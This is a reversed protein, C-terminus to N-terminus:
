MVTFSSKSTATGSPTDVHFPGTTAGSPVTATIQTSSDQTFSAAVGNFTVATAGQLNTGTITVSAGVSGSTPSFYSISPHMSSTYVSYNVVFYGWNDGYTGPPGNYNAADPIGLYVVTAGTPVDFYQVQGSNTLGDGVFFLQNLLPSLSTFDTGITDFNLTPPPSGSPIGGSEFVAGLFGATPTIIGSIPGQADLTQGQASGVGDADNYNSGNGFNTSVCPVVCGPGFSGGTIDFTVATAGKVLPIAVPLIGTGDSTNVASFGAASIDDTANVTISGTLTPIVFFRTPTTVVGGPTIIQLRGTLAGSPVTATIQTPSDISFDAPVGNFAVSVPVSSAADASFNTGAITMISGVKGNNPSFSTVTPALLPTDQNIVVYSGVASGAGFKFTYSVDFHYTGGIVNVVYTVAGHNFSGPPIEPGQCNPAGNLCGTVSSSAAMGPGFAGALNFTCNCYSFQDVLFAGYWDITITDAASPSGLSNGEYTIQFLAGFPVYTGCCNNSGWGTGNVLYKDGNPLAFDFTVPLTNTTNYPLPTGPCSAGKLCKTDVSVGFYNNATSGAAFALFCAFGLFNSRM